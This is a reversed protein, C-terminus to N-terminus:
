TVLRDRCRQSQKFFFWSKISTKRPKLEFLYFANNTTAMDQRPKALLEIPKGNFFCNRLAESVWYALPSGPIKKFDDPKASKLRDNRVPFHVPVGSKTLDANSCYSFSGVYEHIHCCRMVTAATGFAIGMVGNGMHIMNLLTRNDLLNKRMAEFSSLFMWSQMTVKSNYGSQKGWGFGREIFM